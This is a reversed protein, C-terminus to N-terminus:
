YIMVFMTPNCGVTNVTQGLGIDEVSGSVDLGWGWRLFFCLAWVAGLFDPLHVLVVGRVVLMGYTVRCAFAFVPWQYPISEGLPIGYCLETHGDIPAVHTWEMLPLVVAVSM